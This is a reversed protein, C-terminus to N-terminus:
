RMGERRSSCRCKLATARSQVQQKIQLLSRVSVYAIPNPLHTSMRLPTLSIVHLIQISSHLTHALAPLQHHLANAEPLLPTCRISSSHIVNLFCILLSATPYASKGRMRRVLAVPFTFSGDSFDRIIWSIPTITLTGVIYFHTEPFEPFNWKLADVPIIAALVHDPAADALLVRFPPPMVPHISFPKLFHSCTFVSQAMQLTDHHAIWHLNIQFDFCVKKM